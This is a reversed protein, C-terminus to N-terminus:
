GFFKVIKQTVVDKIDLIENINLSSIKNDNILFTPVLINYDGVNLNINAIKVKGKNIKINQCISEFLKARSFASLDKINTIWMDGVNTSLVTADVIFLKKGTHVRKIKEIFYEANKSTIPNTVGGYVFTPVNLKKLSDGVLAGVSDFLVSSDGLCVFVFDKINM